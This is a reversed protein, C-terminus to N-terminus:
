TDLFDEEDGMAWRLAALKGNIMGWEFDGFLGLENPTRKAEIGKANECAADWIDKPVKTPGEALTLRYSRNYWVIELLRNIELSIEGPTRPLIYDCEEGAILQRWANSCAEREAPSVLFEADSSATAILAAPTIAESSATQKRIFNMSKDAAKSGDCMDLHGKRPKASGLSEM